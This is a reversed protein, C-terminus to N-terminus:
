DEIRDIAAILAKLGIIAIEEEEAKLNRLQNQWWSRRSYLLGDALEQGKDSLLCTVTRRDVSSTKRLVLKREVLRDILGTVNSLSTNLNASLESMRSPGMKHLLFMTRVQPMTLDVDLWRESVRSRMHHFVNDLLELLETPVEKGVVDDNKPDNKSVNSM